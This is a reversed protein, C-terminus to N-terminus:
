DKNRQEHFDRWGVGLMEDMNHSFLDAIAKPSEMTAADMSVGVKIVDVHSIISFSGVISRAVPMVFGMGHNVKGDVVYPERPGPVNSFGFTMKTTYDELIYWRLFSPLQMVIMIVYYLGIPEISKKLALMDRNILKIGETLSDVLRLNLNVIAFDNDFTFDGLHKPPPRLSFPCAMNVSKTTTDDTNKRLYDHISKSLVTM